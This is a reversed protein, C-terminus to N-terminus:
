ATCTKRMMSANREQLSGHVTSRVLRIEKFTIKRRRPQATTQIELRDTENGVTAAHQRKREDLSLSGCYPSFTPMLPNYLCKETTCAPQCTTWLEELANKTKLPLLINEGSVQAAPTAVWLVFTLWSAKTEVCLSFM